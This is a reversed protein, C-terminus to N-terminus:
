FGSMPGLLGTWKAYMVLQGLIGYGTFAEVGVAVLFGLMALRGQNLEVMRAYDWESMAAAPPQSMGTQPQAPSRGQAYLVCIDAHFGELVGARKEIICVDQPQTSTALKVM